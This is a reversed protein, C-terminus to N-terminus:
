AVMSASSLALMNEFVSVEVPKSYLFGQFYDCGFADLILQQEKTEVGEAITKIGLKHALVIIAETLVKDNSDETLNIIFSRDIKLYDIDFEKLYSLASFGTGFDDISVEIGMNRFDILRQKVKKSDNILLGETIEVILSNKPLKSDNFLNLWAFESQLEFQIPSMNVSVQIVHGYKAHWQQIHGIVEKFVWEGIEIILLSEEALPIFVAPSIMGRVPHKWRLLAEAKEINCSGANVIPQYYVELENKALVHRLENSLMLKDRAVQQMSFQFFNFSNKAHAKVYYMAQDAQKMLEDLDETNEPYTSIGISATIFALNGNKLDFPKSFSQIIDQAVQELHVRNDFDSLIVTYEDGGVRAITDTERVCQAIREGAEKLVADGKSHGFSDNVNKFGDLDIFFLALLTGKKRVVKAAQQLRDQFLHRNPLQTLTDYNAQNWILAERKLLLEMLKNFGQQLSEIEGVQVSDFSILSSQGVKTLSSVQSSFQILPNVVLRRIFFWMLLGFSLFLVLNSIVVSIMTDLLMSYLVSEGSSIKLVGLYERNSDQVYYLNREVTLLTSPMIGKSQQWVAITKHESNQVEINVITQNAGMGNLMNNLLPMDLNWLASEATSSFTRAFSQLQNIINQKAVFYEVVLQLGTVMLVFYVYALLLKRFLLHALPYHPSKAKKNEIFNL